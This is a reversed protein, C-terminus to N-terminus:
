KSSRVPTPAPPTVGLEAAVATFKAWLKLPIPIGETQRIKECRWEPEGAVLVEDYGPAPASAKVMGVLRDVRNEFEGAPMFRKPDIAIFCHSIGLPDGGTRYVPLETAMEGGSLGASLLEALMAFATGKYRGFPTPAGKQAAATETTPQGTSDLFGWERPIEAHNLHAAHSLKGLAVTTTAMDLLWRGRGGLGPAAVCLPNTGLIPTKGQWPAVAPCANSTVIAIFGARALKEGWWAGAGFHNSHNTVVVSIGHSQAIRISHDTCCEAVVQGLGNEGDYRLFVGDEKVVRGAAPVNIGGARLQQIYVLLMQIGHSDVGRLNAAVLSDGVIRAHSEATGLAMLLQRCFLRLPEARFTATVPDTPTPM